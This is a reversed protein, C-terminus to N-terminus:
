LTDWLSDKQRARQPLTNEDLKKNLQYLHEILKTIGLGVENRKLLKEIFDLFSIEELLNIELM